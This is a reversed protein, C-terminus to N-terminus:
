LRACGRAFLAMTAFFILGLTLYLIDDM